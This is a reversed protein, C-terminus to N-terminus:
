AVSIALVKASISAVSERQSLLEVAVGVAHAMDVVRRTVERDHVM